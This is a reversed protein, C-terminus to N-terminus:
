KIKMAKRKMLSNAVSRFAVTLRIMDARKGTKKEYEYFFETRNPPIKM